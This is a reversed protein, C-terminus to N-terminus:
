GALRNFLGFSVLDNFTIFIMLALLVMLGTRFAWEQAAPGLPKRRVGEILYFLLHGGDLLPIPLLNIFGLNISVVTMLWFFPLWGLSAQQGSVEAIKLPGGLEKVSRTGTVVQGLAVVMSEVTGITRDVAAGLLKHPPLRELSAGVGPAIGLRGIRASNGFEDEVTEDASTMTVTMEQGDRVVTLEMVTNPRLSVYSSLDAFTDVGSGNIAVIEDGPRLGSSAAPSNPILSGVTAAATPYGNIAFIAMFAVIAFAFNTFPGAAVIIFRQWVPKAQFTQNREEAPLALWEDSPTSAPNMDGKFKVYGGLPLAAVKWRTGLKDTWGFLEKGFGISFTEARVGFMRGALYHGMEHIFVLPGLVALFAVVILLFGPETM